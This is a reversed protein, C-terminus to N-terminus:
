RRRRHLLPLRKSQRSWKKTEGKETKLSRYGPAFFGMDEPPAPEYSFITISPIVADDNFFQEDPMSECHQPMLWRGGTQVLTTRTLEPSEEEEPIVTPDVYRSTLLSGVPCNTNM